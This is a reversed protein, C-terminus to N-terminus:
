NRDAWGIGVQPWALVQRQGFDVLQDLGSAIASVTVTVRGQDQNGESMPQPSGFYAIEHTQEMAGAREVDPRTAGLQNVSLFSWHSRHFDFM